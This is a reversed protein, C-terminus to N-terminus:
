INLRSLRWSLATTELPILLLQVVIKRLVTKAKGQCLDKELKQVVLSIVSPDEGLFLMVTAELM